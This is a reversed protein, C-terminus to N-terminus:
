VNLGKGEMLRLLGMVFKYVLLGGVVYRVGGRVEERKGEYDYDYVFYDRELEEKGLLIYWGVLDDGFFVERMKYVM